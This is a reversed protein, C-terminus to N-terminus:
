GIGLRGLLDRITSLPFGPSTSHKLVVPENPPGSEIAYQEHASFDISGIRGIQRRRVGQETTFQVTMSYTAFQDKKFTFDPRVVRTISGGPRLEPAEIEGGDFSLRVGTISEDSRNAVTITIARFRYAVVELIPFSIAVIGLFIFRRNRRKRLAEPTPKPKAGADAQGEVKARDKYRERSKKAM